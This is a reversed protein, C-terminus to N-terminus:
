GKVKRQSRLFRRWAGLEVIWSIEYVLEREECSHQQENWVARNETEWRAQTGAPLAAVPLAQAHTIGAFMEEIQRHQFKRFDDRVEQKKIASESGNM